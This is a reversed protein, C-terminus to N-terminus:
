EFLLHTEFELCQLELLDGGTSWLRYACKEMLSSKSISSIMKDLHVNEYLQQVRVLSSCDSSFSNSAPIWRVPLNPHARAISELVCAEAPHLCDDISSSGVVYVVKKADLTDNFPLCFKKPGPVVMINQRTHMADIFFLWYIFVKYRRLFIDIINSFMWTSSETTFEFISYEIGHYGWVRTM